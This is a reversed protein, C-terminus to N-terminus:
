LGKILNTLATKVEHPQRCTCPKPCKWDKELDTEAEALNLILLFIIFIKM